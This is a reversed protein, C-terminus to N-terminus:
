AKLTFEESVESVLEGEQQIIKEVRAIDEPQDVSAHTRGKYDVLVIQIPIGNELFRLQELKEMKELISIPLQMYHTLISYRYAYLGIHQYIATKPSSLRIKEEDRLAPLLKKSFYLANKKLDFVVSTGFPTGLKEAQLYADYQEWSLEMAPTAVTSLPNKQMVDVVSQLVWPPTLVADGQLNLIIEPKEPYDQLAHFIRETGNECSIPTLLVNAGWQLAINQIERDDTTIIVEAINQITKAIKWTRYLLPKGLIPILPKGPLRTSAKRAPIFIVTKMM